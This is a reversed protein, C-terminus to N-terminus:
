SNSTSKCLTAPATQKASIYRARARADRGFFFILQQPHQVQLLNVAIDTRFNGM